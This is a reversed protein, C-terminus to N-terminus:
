KRRASYLKQEGDLDSAFYLTCLDPSLSPTMVQVSPPLSNAFLLSAIAGVRPAGDDGLPVVFSRLVPAADCGSASYLSQFLLFKGDPTVWPALDDGKAECQGPLKISLPTTAPDGAVKTALVPSVDASAKLMFWYQYPRTAYKVAPSYTSAGVHLDSLVVRGTPGMGLLPAVFITRQRDFSTLGDFLLAGDPLGEPSDAAEPLLIPGSENNVTTNISANDPQTGPGWPQGVATRIDTNSGFVARYVLRENMGSAGTERRVRPFSPSAGDVDIPVPTDLGITGSLDACSVCSNGQCFTGPGCSDCGGQSGGGGSAAASGGSGGAGGTGITASSNSSSAGGAGDVQVQFPDGCGLAVCLATSLAGHFCLTRM